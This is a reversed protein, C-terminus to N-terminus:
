SILYAWIPCNLKKKFSIPDQDLWSVAEFVELVQVLVDLMDIFATYNGKRTPDSIPLSLINNDILKKIVSSVSDAGSATILTHREPM